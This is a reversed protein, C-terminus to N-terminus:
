PTMCRILEQLQEGSPYFKARIKRCEANWMEQYQKMSEPCTPTFSEDGTRIWKEDQYAYRFTHNYTSEEPKEEPKFIAPFSLTVEAKLPNITSDTKKVDYSCKAKSFVFRTKGKIERSPSGLELSDRQTFSVDQFGDSLSRVTNAMRKIESEFQKTPDPKSCGALLVCAAILIKRM